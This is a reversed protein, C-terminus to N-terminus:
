FPLNDDEDTFEPYEEPEPIVDVIPLEDEISDDSWFDIDHERFWRKALNANLIARCTTTNNRPIYRRLSGDMLKACKFAAEDSDFVFEHNYGNVICSVKWFVFRM